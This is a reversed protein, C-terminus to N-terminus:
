NGTDKEKRAAKDIDDSFGNQMTNDLNRCLFLLIWGILTLDVNGLLLFENIAGTIYVCSIKTLKYINLISYFLWLFWLCFFSLM